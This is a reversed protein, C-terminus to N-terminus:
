FFLQNNELLFCELIKVENEDNEKLTGNFYSDLITNDLIKLIVEEKKLYELLINVLMSLVNRTKSV